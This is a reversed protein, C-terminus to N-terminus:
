TACLRLACTRPKTCGTLDCYSPCFRWPTASARFPCESSRSRGLCASPHPHPPSCPEPIPQQFGCFNCWGGAGGPLSRSISGWLHIVPGETEQTGM